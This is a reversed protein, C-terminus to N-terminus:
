TRCAEEAAEETADEREERADDAADEAVERDVDDADDDPDAVAVEEPEELALVAAVFEDPVNLAVESTSM